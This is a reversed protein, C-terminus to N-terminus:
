KALGMKRRYLEVLEADTPDRGMAEKFGARAKSAEAKPIDGAGVRFDTRGAAQAEFLRADKSFWWDRPLSGAVLLKRGIDLTEADTPRRKKTDQFQGLAESVQGQFTALRDADSTGPKGNFKLGAAVAEPKLLSMAKTVSAAKDAEAADKRNIAGQQTVLQQWQAHPLTMAYPYLDLDAFAAPDQSAMGALRYYDAQNTATPQVPVGKAKHELYTLVSRQTEGPLAAWKDTPIRDVSTVAPDIAMKWVDDRAKREGERIAAEHRNFATVLGSEVQARIDPDQVDKARDLWASLSPRDASAAVARRQVEKVYDRTEKVPIKAAFEAESIEGKRPDGLTKIWGDVAGPGANYAALGLTLNGDYHARLAKSYDRGVRAREALSDDKAPVVGYGPDRNTSDLVQMRGKAGKPSTVVTGDTNLDRNGSEVQQQAAIIADDSVAGGASINAVIGQATAKAVGGKLGREITDLDGGLIRGRVSEFYAQAGIPDNVMRNAIVSRHLDSQFKELKLKTVDPAWGNREAQDLIENRGVILSQNIREGSTYSAAADNTADTIRAESATDLWVRRERAVHRSMDDLSSSARNGAVSDFLRRQDKTLDKGYKEKLADVAKMTDPLADVALKGQKGYFGKEPDFLLGRLETNFGTDAQKAAAEDDQAKQKLAVRELENALGGLQQGAGQLAQGIGAGFDAPSGTVRQYADPAARQQVQPGTYTAVKPM